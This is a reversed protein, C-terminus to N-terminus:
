LKGNMAELFGSAVYKAALPNKFEVVEHLGLGDCYVTNGEEADKSFEVEIHLDPVDFNCGIVSADDNIGISLTLPSVLSPWRGVVYDLFERVWPVASDMFDSERAVTSLYELVADPLRQKLTSYQEDFCQKMAQLLWDKHEDLRPDSKENTM